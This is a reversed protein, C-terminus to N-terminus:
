NRIIQGKQWVCPWQSIKLTSEDLCLFDYGRAHMKETCFQTYPSLYNSAILWVLSLCIYVYIMLSVLVHDAERGGEMKEEAEM